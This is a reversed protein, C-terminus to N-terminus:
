KLRSLSSTVYKFRWFEEGFAPANTEEPYPLGL